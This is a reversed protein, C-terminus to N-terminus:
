KLQWVVLASIALVLVLLYHQVYGTQVRRLGRGSASVVVAIGNMCGDVVTHDFWGKMQGLAWGLRGVGNVAGDIIRQDFGALDQATQRMPALLYREYLADFRYAQAAATYAWRWRARLSPSFVPQQKIYLLWAVLFGLAAALTSIAAVSFHFTEAVAGGGALWQQFAFHMWPSGPLGVVISALALVILPIVMVAPSEHPVAHPAHPPPRPSGFFTLFLLRFMYGSTMASVAVLAWFIVHHGSAFAAALIADKSWFGALPPVGSIALTAILCTAFTWPMARRLGGMQFLEQHHVAHIVSGAGLFLLAKFCAHTALHFMGAERGGVGLAAMMFGLQSLTSYALVRKIDTQALAITAAMLATITGIVAVVELSTPTFLVYSRAVLYVGAAVMTAAHILASVPTPGEMADPLWVHLPFQASKGVAGSFICLSILTLLGAHGHALCWDRTQPMASFRLERTTLYLVLIGLLLGADGIRTTLFAKKGAAAAAPKEFWFSILLYSCLGVLEWGVYLLALNDALVLLLMSACFLSLYAFFRSFRPDDRMYGISYIQILTGIVTVVTLMLLALADVHLGILLPGRDLLLGTWQLTFDGGQWVAPWLSLTVATSLLMAAIAVLSSARGLRRGVLINIAFALAPALPILALIPTHM